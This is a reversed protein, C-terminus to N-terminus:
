DPVIGSLPCAQLRIARLPSDERARPLLSEPILPPLDSGFGGCLARGMRQDVRDWRMGCGACRWQCDGSSWTAQLLCTYGERHFVARHSRLRQLTPSLGPAISRVRPPPLPPPLTSSSGPSGDLPATKIYMAQEVQARVQGPTCDQHVRAFHQQSECDRVQLPHRGPAPELERGVFLLDPRRDPRRADMYRFYMGRRLRVLEQLAQCRRYRLEIITKGM